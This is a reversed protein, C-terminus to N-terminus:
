NMNGRPTNLKVAQRNSFLQKKREQKIIAKEFVSTHGWNKSTQLKVSIINEDEVTGRTQNYKRESQKWVWSSRQRDEGLM